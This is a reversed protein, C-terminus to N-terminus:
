IALSAPKGYHRRIGAQNHDARSHIDVAFHGSSAIGCSLADLLM